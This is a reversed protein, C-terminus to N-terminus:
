AIQTGTWSWTLVSPSKYVRDRGHREVPPRWCKGLGPSELSDGGGSQHRKGSTRAAFHEIPAPAVDASVGQVERFVLDVRAYHREDLGRPRMDRRQQGRAVQIGNPEQTSRAVLAAMGQARARAPDAM